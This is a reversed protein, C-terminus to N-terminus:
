SSTGTGALLGTLVDAQQRLDKARDPRVSELSDAAARREDIEANVIARMQAESLDRRAAETSGAGVAAQEIAGARADTPVAEANDISALTTRRPRVRDTDRAKM